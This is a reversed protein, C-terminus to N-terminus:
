DRTGAHRKNKCFEQWEALQHRKKRGLESKWDLVWEATSCNVSLWVWVEDRLRKRKTGRFREINPDLFPKIHFQCQERRPVQRILITKICSAHRSDGYMKINLPLPRYARSAWNAFDKLDISKCQSFRYNLSMNLKGLCRELLFNMKFIKCSCEDWLVVFLEFGWYSFQLISMSAQVLIAEVSILIFVFWQLSPFNISIFNRGCPDWKPVKEWNSQISFLNNSCLM